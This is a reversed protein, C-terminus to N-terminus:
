AGERQRIAAARDEDIFRLMDTCAAIVGCGFPTMPSGNRHIRVVEERMAEREERRANALEVEIIEPITYAYCIERTTTQWDKRRFLPSDKGGGARYLEWGLIELVRAQDDPTM